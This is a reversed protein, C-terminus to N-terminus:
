LLTIEALSSILKREYSQRWFRGVNAEKRKTQAAKMSIGGLRLKLRVGRERGGESEKEKGEREKGGREGERV